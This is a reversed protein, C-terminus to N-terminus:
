GNQFAPSPSMHFQSSSAIDDEINIEGINSWVDDTSTIACDYHIENNCVSKDISSVSDSTSYVEDPYLPKVHIVRCNM